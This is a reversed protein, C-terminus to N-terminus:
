EVRLNRIKVNYKITDYGRSPSIYKEEFPKGQLAEMYDYFDEKSLREDNVMYIKVANTLNNVDNGLDDVEKIAEILLMNNNTVVMMVTDISKEISEIRREMVPIKETNTKLAYIQTFGVWVTGIAAVVTMAIKVRKDIDEWKM